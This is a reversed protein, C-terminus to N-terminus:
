VISIHTYGLFFRSAHVPQLLSANECERVRRGWPSQAPLWPAFKRYSDRLSLRTTLNLGFSCIYERLDLLLLCVSGDEYPTFLVCGKRSNM